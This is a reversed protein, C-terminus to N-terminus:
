IIGGNKVWLIQQKNKANLPANIGNSTLQFESGFNRFAFPYAMIQISINNKFKTSM